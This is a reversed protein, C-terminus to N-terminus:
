FIDYYHKDEENKRNEKYLKTIQKGNKDFLKGQRVAENWAKKYGAWSVYTEGLIVGDFM